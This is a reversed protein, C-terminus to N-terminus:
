SQGESRCADTLRLVLADIDNGPGDTLEHQLRKALDSITGLGYMGAAGKLRHVFHTLRDMDGERHVSEITQAHDELEARFQAVLEDLVQRQLFGTGLPRNALAPATQASQSVVAEPMHRYKPDPIEDHSFPELKEPDDYIVFKEGVIARLEDAIRPTVPNFPSRESM